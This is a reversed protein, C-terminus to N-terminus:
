WRSTSRAEARSSSATWRSATAPACACATASISKSWRSKRTAATTASAGRRKRRSISCHAFPAAPRSARGCNSCKGSCSSCPSSPRRKSISRSSATRDALEGSLAGARVHRCPQLRLRCRGRARDPQVHQALSQSGLGLRARLVAMRGMAGGANRASVSGVGINAALHLSSPQPRSFARGDGSHRTPVALVAGIWFRRTM